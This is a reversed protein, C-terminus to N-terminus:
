REIKKPFTVIFATGYDPSSQVTILGQQSYVLKQVNYLGLGSHDGQKTSFGADFVRNINEPSIIPLNNFVVFQYYNEKELIEIRLIKEYSELQNLEYIANDILNFLIQAYCISSGKLHECTTQVHSEIKIGMHDAEGLKQMLVISIEPIHINAIEYSQSVNQSICQIYEVIRENKGLQALGSIVQLDNFFDHKHARLRLLVEDSKQLQILAQQHQAEKKLLDVLYKVGIIGAINIIAYFAVLVNNIEISVRGNFVHPSLIIFGILGQFFFLGLILSSKHYTNFQKM